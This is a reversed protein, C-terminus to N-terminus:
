SGEQWIHTVKSDFNMNIKKNKRQLTKYIYINKKYRVINDIMLRNGHDVSHSTEFM